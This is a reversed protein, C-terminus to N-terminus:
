PSEGRARDTEKVDGRLTRDARVSTLDPPPLLLPARKRRGRLRRRRPAWAGSRLVKSGKVFM